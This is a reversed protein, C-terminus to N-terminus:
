LFSLIRKNIEGQKQQESIEGIGVTNGLINNLHPQKKTDSFNTEPTSLYSM